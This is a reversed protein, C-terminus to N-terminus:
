ERFLKDAPVKHSRTQACTGRPWMCCIGDESARTLTSLMTPRLSLGRDSPYSGANEPGLFPPTPVIAPHCSSLLGTAGCGNICGFNAALRPLCTEAFVGDCLSCTFSNMNGLQMVGVSTGFVSLPFVPVVMAFRGGCGVAM